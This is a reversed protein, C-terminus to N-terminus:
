AVYFPGGESDTAVSDARRRGQDPSDVYILHAVGDFTVISAPPLYTFM